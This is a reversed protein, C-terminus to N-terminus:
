KINLREKYLAVAEEQTIFGAEVKDTLELYLFRTDETLKFSFKFRLKQLERM